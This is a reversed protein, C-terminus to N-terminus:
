SVCAGRPGAGVFSLDIEPIEQFGLRPLFRQTTVRNHYGTGIVLASDYGAYQLASDLQENGLRNNGHDNDNDNSGILLLVRIGKRPTNRVAWPLQHGGRINVYSACHSVVCGFAEPRHYGAAM